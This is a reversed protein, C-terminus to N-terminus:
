GGNEVIQASQGLQAMLQEAPSGQEPAKALGSNAKGAQELQAMQRQQQQAQQEAAVLREVDPDERITSQPFGESEMVKETLDMFDVKHRAPPHFEKIITGIVSLGANISNAQHYRKQAQALLGTFDVDLPIGTRLLAQPPRPLWGARFAINFTRRVVPGLFEHNQRTLPGALGAVKEGQREVIERATMQRESRQLMLFLDTLFIDDIGGQLDELIDKGFPYNSTTDLPFLRRNPDKYQNFAFPERKLRRLMEKPGQLIPQVAFQAAQMM